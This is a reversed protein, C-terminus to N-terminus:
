IREGRGGRLTSGWGGERGGRPAPAYGSLHRRSQRQSRIRPNKSPPARRSQLFRMEVVARRRSAGGRAESPDQVGRDTLLPSPHGVQPRERDSRLRHDDRRQSLDPLADAGAIRVWPAPGFASHYQRRGPTGSKKEKLFHTRCAGADHGAASRCGQRNPPPCDEINPADDVIPVLDLPQYMLWATQDSIPVLNLPQHMLPTTHDSIPVLCLPQYILWATQDAVTSL